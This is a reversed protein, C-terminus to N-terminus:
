RAAAAPSAPSEAHHGPSLGILALFTIADRPLAPHRLAPRRPADSRAPPPWAMWSTGAGLGAPARLLRAAAGQRRAQPRAEQARLARGPRFQTAEAGAGAPPWCKNQPLSQSGTANRDSKGTLHLQAPKRGCPLREEHIRHLCPLSGSRIGTGACRRAM